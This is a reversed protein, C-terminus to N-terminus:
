FKYAVAAVLKLDNKKRGAAPVNNYTDDLYVRLALKKSSNLDAEVGIEFNVIYNNFDDVQPLIEATEWL